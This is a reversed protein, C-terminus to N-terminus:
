SCVLKQRWARSSLSFNAENQARSFISQATERSKSHSESSKAAGVGSVMGLQNLTESFGVFAVIQFL